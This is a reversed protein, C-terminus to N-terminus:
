SEKPCPITLHRHYPLRPVSSGIKHNVRLEFMTEGLHNDYFGVCFGRDEPSPLTLTHLDISYIGRV